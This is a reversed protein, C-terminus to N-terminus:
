LFSRILARTERPSAVSIYKIGTSVVPYDNGGPFIADGVFLIKEKPVGLRKALQNIGHAKDIGARTVDISTAGAVGILFDPLLPTLRAAIALRKKADPDWARKLHLPAEQGLASFTVQTGRYEIQEGFLEDPEEFAVASLAVAFARRIRLAEEETLVERYVERWGGEFRYFCAASTPLLSLRKLPARPSFRRLLQSELQSFSAGSIIAVMRRALLETLLKAMDADLPQKPETLTGDVDFVILETDRMNM